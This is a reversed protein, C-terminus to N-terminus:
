ATFFLLSCFVLAPPSSGREHRIRAPFVYTKNLRNTEFRQECKLAGLSLYKSMWITRLDSGLDDRGVSSGFSVCPRSIMDFPRVFHDIEVAKLALIEFFLM